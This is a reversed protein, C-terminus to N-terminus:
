NRRKEAETDSAPREITQAISQDQAKFLEYFSYEYNPDGM